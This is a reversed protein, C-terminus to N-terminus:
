PRALWAHFAAPLASLSQAADSFHRTFVVSMMDGGTAVVVARSFGAPLFALDLAALVDKQSNANNASFTSLQVVTPCSPLASFAACAVDLDAPWMNGLKPKKAPGHRDFMYPDFSVLYAGHDAPLGSRFRQRWDGRHLEYSIEGSVGALWRAVDDATAADAECLLLALPGNWVNRVFAASSPYECSLATALSTWALEYRSKQGPLRTRVRDFDAASQGPNVDRVAFPSMAHADILCLRASQETHQRLLGVLEVLVWHQLLNGRNGKYTPM